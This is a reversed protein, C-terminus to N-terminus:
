RNRHRRQGKEMRVHRRDPEQRQHIGPKQSRGCGEELFKMSPWRLLRGRADVQGQAICDQTGKEEPDPRFKWKQQDLMLKKMELESKIRVFNKEGRIDDSEFQGSTLAQVLGISVGALLAVTLIPVSVIVAIWLAHRLTDYFIIEEIM